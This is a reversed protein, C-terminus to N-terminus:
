WIPALLSYYWLQIGEGYWLAILTALSLFTGFPVQDGARKSGTIMWAIGCSAGIVYAMGLAIIGGWVGLVMGMMAGIMIDGGGVWRGRSVTYQIWFWGALVVAGIVLSLAVSPDHVILLIGAILGGGLTIVPSVEMYTFDYFFVFLALSSVLMDRALLLISQDPSILFRHWAYLYLLTSVIEIVVYRSPISERCSGCRGRLWAFSVIPILERWSLTTACATCRSRELTLPLAHHVRHVLM